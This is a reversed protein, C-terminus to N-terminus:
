WPREGDFEGAMVNEDLKGACPASGMDEDGGDTNRMIDDDVGKREERLGGMEIFEEGEERGGAM